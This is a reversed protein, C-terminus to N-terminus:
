LKAYEEPHQAFYDNMVQGMRENIKKAFAYKEKESLEEYPRYGGKGDPVFGRVTIEKNKAM